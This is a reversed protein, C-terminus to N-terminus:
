GLFAYWWSGNSRRRTGGYLWMPVIPLYVQVGRNGSLSHAASPYCEHCVRRFDVHSLSNSMGKRDIVFTRSGSTDGSGSVSSQSKYQWVSLLPNSRSGERYLREFIAFSFFPM